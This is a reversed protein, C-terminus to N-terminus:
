SEKRAVITLTTRCSRGALAIRVRKTVREVGMDPWWVAAEITAEGDSAIACTADAGVLEIGDATQRVEFGPAVLFSIAAGALPRDLQDDIVIRDRRAEIRRYHRAGGAPGTFGSHEVTVLLEADRCQVDRRVIRCRKGLRFSGFFDGQDAGPAALTNHHAASRAAQRADGAVYTLVGQDVVMRQGAISWEFSGIDGHAHGPLADPGLPGADVVFYDNASRLGAYGGEPQDFVARAQFARGSIARAAERLVRPSRAMGLGADGFLAPGGDPHALDAVVQAARGIVTDLAGGLPDGGLAHRIELLDGLVQAHYSPSREFHMGDPLFQTLERRLLRLGTARWRKADRGDIAASGWLLASINKLLHNGGIDTELHVELFRLHRGIQGALQKVLADDLAGRRAVLQQMWVLVRISVAYSNWADDSAGRSFPPNAAVWQEVAEVFARDDIGEAWEFYHLNMRWLQNVPGVGGLRWDILAPSAERRHLFTFRWGEATREGGSPRPEFLPLPADAALLAPGDLSPAVIREMQRRWSLALRRVMQRPPIHRAFAWTRDARTSFGRMEIM